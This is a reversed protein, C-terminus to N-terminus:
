GLGAQMQLGARVFGLEWGRSRGLSRQVAIWRASQRGDPRPEPPTTTETSPCDPRRCACGWLKSAALLNLLDRMRLDGKNSWNQVIFKSDCVVKRWNCRVLCIWVRGIKDSCAFSLKNIDTITMAVMGNSDPIQLEISERETCWKYNMHM